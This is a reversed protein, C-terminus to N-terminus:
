AEVSATFDLYDVQSLQGAQTLETLTDAIVNDVLRLGEATYYVTGIAAIRELAKDVVFIAASDTLGVGLGAKTTVLWPDVVASAPMDILHKFTM